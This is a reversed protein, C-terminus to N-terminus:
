DTYFFLQGVASANVVGTNSVTTISSSFAVDKHYDILNARAAIGMSFWRAFFHEVGAQIPVYIHVDTNTNPALKGLSFGFGGGVELRTSTSRFPVFLVVAEPNFTWLTTSGAPAPKTVNFNFGPVVTLTDNLWYKLAISTTPTILTQAGATVGLGFGLSGTLDDSGKPATIAQIPPPVNTGPPPSEQAFAPTAVCLLTAAAWATIILSRLPPRTM